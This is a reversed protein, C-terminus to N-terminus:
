SQLKKKEKLFNSGVYEYKKRLLQFSGLAVGVLRNWAPERARGQGKGCAGCYLSRGTFVVQEERAGPPCQHEGRPGAHREKRPSNPAVSFREMLVKQKESNDSTCMHEIAATM